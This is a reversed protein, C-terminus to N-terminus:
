FRITIYKPISDLFVMLTLMLSFPIIYVLETAWFGLFSYVFAHSPNDPQYIIPVKDHLYSGEHLFESGLCSYLTDGVQYQVVPYYRTVKGGRKGTSEKFLFSEIEGKTKEFTLAYYFDKFITPILLGIILLYYILFKSITIQTRSISILKM